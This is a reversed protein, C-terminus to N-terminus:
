EPISGSSCAMLVEEVKGKRLVRVGCFALGGVLSLDPYPM